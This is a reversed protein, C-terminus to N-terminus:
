GEIAEAFYDDHRVSTDGTRSHFRGLAAKARAVAEDRGRNDVVCRDVAARVVASISVRREAATRRLTSAEEETFQIQMRVVTKGMETM